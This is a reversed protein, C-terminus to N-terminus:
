DSGKDENVVVDSCCILLENLMIEIRQCFDLLADLEDNDPM